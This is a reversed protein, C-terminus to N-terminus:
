VVTLNAQTITGNVEEMTKTIKTLRVLSLKVITASNQKMRPFESARNRRGRAECRGKRKSENRLGGGPLPGKSTQPFRVINALMSNLTVKRSGKGGPTFIKRQKCCESFHGLKECYYCKQGYAACKGYEHTRGCDKCEQIHGCNKCEKVTNSDTIKNEKATVACHESLSYWM